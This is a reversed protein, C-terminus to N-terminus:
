EWRAGDWDTGLWARFASKQQPTPDAVLAFYLADAPRAGLTATVKVLRDRRFVTLEVEEGPCREDCRALLSSGDARYGDLAVLEDDAYLGA